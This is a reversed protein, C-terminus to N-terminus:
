TQLRAERKREYRLRQKETQKWRWKDYDCLPYEKGKTVDMRPKCFPCAGARYEDTYNCDKTSYILIGCEYGRGKKVKAFCPRKDKCTLMHRM